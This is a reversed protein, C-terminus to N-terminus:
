VSCEQDVYRGPWSFSGADVLVCGRATAYKHCAFAQSCGNRGEQFRNFLISSKQPMIQFHGVLKGFSIEFGKVPQNLVHGKTGVRIRVPDAAWSMSGQFFNGRKRQGGAVLQRLRV